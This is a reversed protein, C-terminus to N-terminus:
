TQTKLRKLVFRNMNVQKHETTKKRHFRRNMFASTSVSYQNRVFKGNQSDGGWTYTWYSWKGGCCNTLMLENENQVSKWVQKYIFPSQM